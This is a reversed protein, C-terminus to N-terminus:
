TFLWAGCKVCKQADLPNIHGCYPCTRARCVQLHAVLGEKTELLTGCRPCKFQPPPPKAMPVPAPVYAPSPPASPPKPMVSPRPPPPPPPPPRLFPLYRLYHSVVRFGGRVFAVFGLIGCSILLGAFFPKPVLLGRGALVFGLYIMVLVGLGFSVGVRKWFDLDEPKPFIALSALFGPAMLTLIGVVLMLISM